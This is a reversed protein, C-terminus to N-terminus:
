QLMYNKADSPPTGVTSEKDDVAIAASPFGFRCPREDPKERSSRGQDAVDAEDKFFIVHAHPLRRPRMPTTKRKKRIGEARAAMEEQLTRRTTRPM